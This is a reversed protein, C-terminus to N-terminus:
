NHKQKFKKDRKKMKAKKEKAAKQFEEKQKRLEEAYQRGERNLDEALTEKVATASELIEMAKNSKFQTIHKTAEAEYIKRFVGTFKKISKNLLPLIQSVKLDGLDKSLDDVRKHQLGIGLFIAAQVYSLRMVKDLHKGFFLKCLRPVLDIVLHFDILNKSYSELRKLDFVSIERKLVSTDLADYEPILQEAQVHSRLSPLMISLALTCPLRSFEFGLLSMFRNRFDNTYPHAWGDNTEVKTEEDTIMNGLQIEDKKLPKIM